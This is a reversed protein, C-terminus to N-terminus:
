KRGLLCSAVGLLTLIAAVAVAGEFFRANAFRPSRSRGAKPSRAAAVALAFLLAAFAAFLWRGGDRETWTIAALAVGACGAAGLIPALLRRIM